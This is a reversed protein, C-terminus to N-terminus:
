WRSSTSSRRTIAPRTPAARPEGRHLARARGHAQRRLETLAETGWDQPRDLSSRSAGRDPRREDRVFEAFATSTTAPSTSRARRRRPDAVRLQGDDEGRPRRRVDAPPRPYNSSCTRSRGRRALLKMTAPSTAECLQQSSAPSRPRHRRRPRLAAFLERAEGSMEKDIRQLRKVLCRINYDRDRNQWIDEIIQAITKRTAARAARGHHRHRQPLVRPAHRRLLRLRRLPVQRPVERGEANRPRADARLPHAVEGAAPLRHVRPRPHRRRHHAHRGHRRDRAQAPQPVRPDAAAAPRGDAPSRRRRVGDGRGFM